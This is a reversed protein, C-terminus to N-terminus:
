KKIDISEETVSSSVVNSKIAHVSISNLASRYIGVTSVKPPINAEEEEEDSGSGFPNQFYLEICHIIEIFNSSNM